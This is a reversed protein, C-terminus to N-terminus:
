PPHSPPCPPSSPPGIDELALRWALNIVTESGRLFHSSSGRSRTAAQWDSLAAGAILRPAILATLTDYHKFSHEYTNYHM